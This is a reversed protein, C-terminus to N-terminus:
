VRRPSDGDRHQQVERAKWDQKRPACDAPEKGWLRLATVLGLLYGVGFLAVGFCLVALEFRSM